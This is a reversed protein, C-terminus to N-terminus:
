GWFRQILDDLSFNGDRIAELVEAEKDLVRRAADPIEGAIEKPAVVVGSADAHILDGPLIAMGGVSIPVNVSAVRMDGRSATTGACWTKFGAERMADLDRVVGDTVVGGAGLRMFLNSMIEGWFCASRPKPGVDQQVLLCPKPAAAVARYLAAREENSRAEGPAYESTTFTVAYGLAVGMEPFMCRVSADAHGASRPRVGFSEVANSVTPTDLERLRALTEDSLTM